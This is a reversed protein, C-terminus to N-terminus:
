KGSLIYVVGKSVRMSLASEYAHNIMSVPQM